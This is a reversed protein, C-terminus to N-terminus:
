CLGLLTMRQPFYEEGHSGVSSGLLVWFGQEGLLQQECGPLVSAEVGRPQKEEHPRVEPTQCTLSAVHQQFPPITCGRKFKWVQEALCPQMGQTAHRLM